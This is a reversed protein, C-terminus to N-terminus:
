DLKARINGSLFEIAVEGSTEGAEALDWVRKPTVRNQRKAGNLVLQNQTQYDLPASSVSFSCLLSIGDHM